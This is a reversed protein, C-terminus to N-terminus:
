FFIFNTNKLINIDDEILGMTSIIKLDYVNEKDYYNDLTHLMDPSTAQLGTYVLVGLMSMIILSLFRPFSKKITRSNNTKIRNIKKM